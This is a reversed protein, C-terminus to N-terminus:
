VVRRIAESRMDDWILPNGVQGVLVVALDTGDYLYFAGIGRTEWWYLDPSRALQAQGLPASTVIQRCRSASHAHIAAVDRGPFSGGHHDM